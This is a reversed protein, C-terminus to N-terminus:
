GKANFQKMRKLGGCEVQSYPTLLYALWLHPLKKPCPPRFMSVPSDHALGECRPTWLEGSATQRDHAGLRRKKRRVGQMRAGAHTQKGCLGRKKVGETQTAWFKTSHSRHRSLESSRAFRGWYRFYNEYKSFIVRDDTCSSSHLMNEISSKQHVYHINLKGFEYAEIDTTFQPLANINVEAKRWDFSDKWRAVLRKIDVLPAGYQWKEGDLEDPLSALRAEQSPPRSRRRSRVTYLPTQDQNTHRGDTM